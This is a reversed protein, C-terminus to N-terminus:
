SLGHQLAAYTAENRSNVDLKRYIATVHANVTRRSVVLRDAIQAYTMGRVLLQLVEIERATLSGFDGRLTVREPRTTEPAAEPEPTQLTALAFSIAEEVTMMPGDTWAARSPGAGPVGPAAPASSAPDAQAVLTLFIAGDKSSALREAAGVLRAAQEIQNRALALSAIQRLLHAMYAKDGVVYGLGLAEAYLNGANALAGQRQVIEGLLSLTQAISWKEDLSRCIALAQELPAIAGQEDDERALLWGLSMLAIAVGSPDNRMRCLAYEEDFLLRAAAYEGHGALATGLNDLALYLDGESDLTRFLAVSEEGCQIAFTPHRQCNAVLCLERLAIALGLADGINRYTAVSEELYARAVAYEGHVLALFGAGWLARARAKGAPSPHSLASALAQRVEGVRNGMLGFSVLAGALRLGIEARAPAHQEPRNVAVRAVDDVQAREAEASWALAARFNDIESEFHMVGARKTDPEGLQLDFAEALLLYHGAHCRRVEEMEGSEALREQAYERITELMAFRMTGNPQETARLLSHDVLAAVGDLLDAAPSTEAAGIVQGAELTFGGSFVALRRFLRQTDAPLLEYSWAIEDRLARQRPPLDHAGGTLLALRDDMRAALAAPSLLKVRAAALEIALPLGDLSVCIKAVDLANAPTLTFDPRAAAARLCFLALAPLDGLNVRERADLAAMAKLDPLQLPPVAYEHEHYSNLRVRSTVLIKLQPCGQLLRAVMPAAAVVQEFNDLVLLTQKHCLYARVDAELADAGTAKIGLTHAITGLVLDAASIPALAVFFVGDAFADGLDAAVQLAVRTKGVGGPGTLMLLGVHQQLLLSRIVHLCLARGLLPGRPLTLTGARRSAQDVVENGHANSTHPLPTGKGISQRVSRRNHGAVPKGDNSADM